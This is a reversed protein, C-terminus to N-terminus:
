KWAGLLRRVVVLEGVHYANHDAIQLAEKLLSQGSGWAFPKVLEEEDAKKVLAVFKKQDAEFAAVSEDWAKESPPAVEEVWYDKPWAKAVYSGDANDSFKVMDEQALRLHELIQWGSYPLGEPVVGRMEVPFGKVAKEFTAHAHGGELLAILERELGKLLGAMTVDEETDSAALM